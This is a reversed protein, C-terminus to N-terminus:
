PAATQLARHSCCPKCSPSTSGAQQVQPRGRARHRGARLRVAQAARDLGRQRGRHPRVRRPLGIGRAVDCCSPRAAAQRHGPRRPRPARLGLGRRQHPLRGAGQVAVALRLRRRRREDDSRRRRDGRLRGIRDAIWERQDALSRPVLDFTATTNSCRTTTSRASRSPTAWRRWGCRSRRRDPESTWAPRAYHAAGPAVM